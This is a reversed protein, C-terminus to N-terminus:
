LRGKIIETGDQINEFETEALKDGKYSEVGELKLSFTEEQANVITIRVSEGRRGFHFFVNSGCKEGNLLVSAPTVTRPDIPMSFRLTIEMLANEGNSNKQATLVNVMFEQQNPKVRMGHYPVYDRKPPINKEQALSMMPLSLLLVFLLAIKKVINM